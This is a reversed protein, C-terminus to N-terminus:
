ELEELISGFENISLDSYSFDGPTKEKETRGTCHDILRHLEEYFNDMMDQISAKKFRTKDYTISLRLRHNFIMASIDLLGVRKRQPSVMKGPSKPRVSFHAFNSFEDFEGLYNFSIEPWPSEALKEDGVIYKLM